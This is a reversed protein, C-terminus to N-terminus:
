STKISERESDITRRFPCKVIKASAVQKCDELCDKCLANITNDLREFKTEKKSKM